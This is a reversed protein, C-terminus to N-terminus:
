TVRLTVVGWAVIVKFIAPENYEVVGEFHANGVLRNEKIRNSILWAGSSM